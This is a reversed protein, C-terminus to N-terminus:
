DGAVAEPRNCHGGREPAASRAERHERGPLDRGLPSLTELCCRFREQRQFSNNVDKIDDTVTRKLVLLLTEHVRQFHEELGAKLPALSVRICDVKLSEALKEADRRKIRLAKFNAEYSAPSSCCQEILLDLDGVACLAGWCEHQELVAGLKAFLLEAKIYVRVLSKTNRGAM